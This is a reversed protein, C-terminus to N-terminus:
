NQYDSIGYWVTIYNGLGINVATITKFDKDILIYDENLPSIGVYYYNDSNFEQKKFTTYEITKSFDINHIADLSTTRVIKNDNILKFTQFCNGGDKILKGDKVTKVVHMKFTAELAFVPNFLNFILCLLMITNLWKKM